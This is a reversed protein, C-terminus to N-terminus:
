FFIPFFQWLYRALWWLPFEPPSLGSMGPSSIHSAVTELGAPILQFLGLLEQLRPLLGRWFGSGRVRM